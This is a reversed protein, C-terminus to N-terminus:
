QCQRPRENGDIVLPVALACRSQKGGGFEVEHRLMQFKRSSGCDEVAQMLPRSPTDQEPWVAAPTLSAGTRTNLLVVGLHTAASTGDCLNALWRHAFAKVDVEVASAGSM